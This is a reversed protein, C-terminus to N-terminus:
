KRNRLDRRDPFSGAPAPTLKIWDMGVLYDTSRPNKGKLNISLTHSGADLTAIGLPVDGTHIVSPFPEFLDISQKLQKEDLSLQVTGYDGAKTFAAWLSYTGATKVPLELDLEASPQHVLWWLQRGGSWADGFPLM